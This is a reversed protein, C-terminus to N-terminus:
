NLLFNDNMIPDTKYLIMDYVKPVGNEDIDNDCFIKRMIPVFM